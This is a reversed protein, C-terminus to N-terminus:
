SRFISTAGRNLSRNPISCLEIDVRGGQVSCNKASLVQVAKNRPSLCLGKTEILWGERWTVRESGRREDVIFGSCGDRKKQWGQWGVEYGKM